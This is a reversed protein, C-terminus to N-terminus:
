CNNNNQLFDTITFDMGTQKNNNKKKSIQGKDRIAQLIKEIDQANQLKAIIHRPKSKNLNIKKM